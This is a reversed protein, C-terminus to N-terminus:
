HCCPSLWSDQSQHKYHQKSDDERTLDRILTVVQAVHRAKTSAPYSVPTESRSLSRKGFGHRLLGRPIQLLSPVLPAKHLFNHILGIRAKGKKRLDIIIRQLQGVKVRSEQREKLLRASAADALSLASELRHHRLIRRFAGRAREAKTMSSDFPSQSAVTPLVRLPRADEFHLDITRCFESLITAAVDRAGDEQAILPDVKELLSALLDIADDAIIHGDDLSRGLAKEQAAKNGTSQSRERCYDREPRGVAPALVSAEEALAASQAAVRSSGVESRSRNEIHAILRLQVLADTIDARERKKSASTTYVDSAALRCLGRHGYHVIFADDVFYAQGDPGTGELLRKRKPPM